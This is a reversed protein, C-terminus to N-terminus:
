NRVCRPFLLEGKNLTGTDGTYFEVVWARSDNQLYSTSSWNFSRDPTAENAKYIFTSDLAPAKNYEIISNLESISPLRWDSQNALTLNSCYSNADAWTMSDGSEKQWVFHTCSDTVTGNVNDSYSPTCNLELSAVKNELTTIRADVGDARQILSNIANWVAQFPDGGPSTSAVVRGAFLIASAMILGAIVKNM